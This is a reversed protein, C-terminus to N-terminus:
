FKAKALDWRRNPRGGSLEKVIFEIFTNESTRPSLILQVEPSKIDRMRLAQRCVKRIRVQTSTLNLM